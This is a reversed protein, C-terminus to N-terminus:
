NKDCSLLDLLIETQNAVKEIAEFTPPAQSTQINRIDTTIKRAFEDYIPNVIYPTFSELSQELLALGNTVQNMSKTNIGNHIQTYSSKILDLLKHSKEDVVFRPTTDPIITDIEGLLYAGLLSAISMCAAKRGSLFGTGWLATPVMTGMAGFTWQQRPELCVYDNINCRLRQAGQQTQRGLNRLWNGWSQDAAQMNLTTGLILFLILIDRKILKM